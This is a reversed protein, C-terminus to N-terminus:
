AGAVPHTKSFVFVFRIGTERGDGAALADTRIQLGWFCAADTPTGHVRAFFVFVRCLCCGRRAPRPANVGIRGRAGRVPGGPSARGGTTATPPPRACMPAPRASPGPLSRPRRLQNTRPACRLLPSADPALASSAPSREPTRPAIRLMALLGPSSRRAGCAFGQRGSCPPPPSTLTPHASRAHGGGFPTPIADRHRTATRVSWGALSGEGLPKSHRSPVIPVTCRRPDEGRFQTFLDCRARSGDVNIRDTRGNCRSPLITDRHRRSHSRHTHVCGVRNSQWIRAGGDRSPAHVATGQPQAEGARTSCATDCRIRRRPLGTNSM